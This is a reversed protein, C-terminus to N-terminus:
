AAVVEAPATEAPAWQRRAERPLLEAYHGLRGRMRRALFNPLTRSRGEYFRRMDSQERLATRFANLEAFEVRLAATRAIVVGRALGSKLLALRRFLLPLSCLEAYVDALRDLYEDFAYHLPRMALYPATYFAFPLASVLRGERQVREAFPTQGFPIPINVNTWVKPHDAIFRRALVFPEDGADDDVGLILNAQVTPIAAEIERMRASVAAYKAEGVASATRSKPAYGAFSEIGPAVMLCGAARLRELRAPNLLSLSSEMVFPNRSLGDRAEFAAMTQDFRIGFNPDHLGILAGPYRRAIVDLERTMRETDFARYPTQWESCFDCSYPCGLSSLLSITTTHWPRGSVFAATRIEAEREEVLPLDSLARTSRVISGSDVRGAIIDDVLLRDCDTVVIDAHSACDAPYARAHPGALVVRAGRGRFLAALAYALMSHQTPTALFVLDLEHPLLDEPRGLGYFTAYHTEHGRMRSWVSVAQPMASYFQQKIALEFWFSPRLRSHLAATSAILELVGVKAKKM